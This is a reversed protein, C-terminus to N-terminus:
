PMAESLVPRNKKELHPIIKQIEVRDQSIAIFQMVVIKMESGCEPCILSDVEYVKQILM